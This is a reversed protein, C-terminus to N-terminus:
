SYYWFISLPLRHFSVQSHLQAPIFHFFLFIFFFLRGVTIISAKFLEAEQSAFQNDALYLDCHMTTKCKCLMSWCGFTPPRFHFALRCLWRWGCEGSSSVRYETCVYLLDAYTEPDGRIRNVCLWECCQPIGGLVTSALPEKMKRGASLKVCPHKTLIDVSGVVYQM